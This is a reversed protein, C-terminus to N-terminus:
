EQWIEEAYRNRCSTQNGNTQSSNLLVDQLTAVTKRPCMNGGFKMCLPSLTLVRSLVSENNRIHLLDAEQARTMVRTGLSRDHVIDDDDGDADARDALM